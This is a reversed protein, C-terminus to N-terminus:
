TGGQPVPTGYRLFSSSKGVSRYRLVPGPNVRVHVYLLVREHGTSGYLDDVRTIPVTSRNDSTLRFTDIGALGDYTDSGGIYFFFHNNGADGVWNDTGTLMQGINYASGNLM